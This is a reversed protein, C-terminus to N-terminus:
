RTQLLVPNCAAREVLMSGNPNVADNALLRDRHSECAAQTTWALTMPSPVNPANVYLLLVWIIM